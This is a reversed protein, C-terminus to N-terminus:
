IFIRLILWIFQVILIFVGFINKELHCSSDSLKFLPDWLHIDKGLGMMLIFIIILLIWFISNQLRAIKEVTTPWYNDGEAFPKGDLLLPWGSWLVYTYYIVSIITAILISIISYIALSASINNTEFSM